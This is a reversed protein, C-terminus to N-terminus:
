CSGDDRRLPNLHPQWHVLANCPAGICVMPGGRGRTHARPPVSPRVHATLRLSILLFHVVSCPSYRGIGGFFFGYAVDFIVIADEAMDHFPRNSPFQIAVSSSSTPKPEAHYYFYHLSTNQILPILTAFLSTSPISSSALSRLLPLSILYTRKQVRGRERYDFYSFFVLPVPVWPETEHPLPQASLGSAQPSTQTSYM